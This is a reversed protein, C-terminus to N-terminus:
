KQPPAAGGGASKAAAARGMGQGVTTLYANMAGLGVRQAHVAASSDSFLGAALGLTGVALEVPVTGFLEYGGKGQIYGFVAASMGSEAATAFLEGTEEAVEKMSRARALANHTRQKWREISASDGM